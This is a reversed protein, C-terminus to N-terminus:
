NEEIKFQIVQIGASTKKTFFTVRYDGNSTKLDGIRYTNGLKSTGEHKIRFSVTKNNEFFRSVLLSGENGSEDNDLVTVDTDENFYHSIIKGDSQNIADIIVTASEQAIVIQSLLSLFIVFLFKM